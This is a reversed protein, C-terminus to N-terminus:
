KIVIKANTVKDTYDYFVNQEDEPIFFETGILPIYLISNNKSVYKEKKIVYDDSGMVVVHWKIYDLNKLSEYERIDPTVHPLIANIEYGKSHNLRADASIFDTYSKINDVEKEHYPYTMNFFMFTTFVSYIILNAKLVRSKLEIVPYIASIVLLFFIGYISVINTRHIM